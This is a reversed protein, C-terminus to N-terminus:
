LDLLKLGIDPNFKREVEGKFWGHLFIECTQAVELDKVHGGFSRMQNDSFTGHIHFSPKGDLLAVSGQLALIELRTDFKKWLYDKKDGDFFGLEAWASAGIGM